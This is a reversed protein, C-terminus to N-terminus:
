GHYLLGDCSSVSLIGMLTHTRARTHRQPMKVTVTRSAITQRMNHNLPVAGPRAGSDFMLLFRIKDSNMASSRARVRCALMGSLYALPVMSVRERATRDSQGIWSLWKREYTRESFPALFSRCSMGHTQVPKALVCILMRGFHSRAKNLEADANETTKPEANFHLRSRRLLHWLFVPFRHHQFALEQIGFRKKQHLFCFLCYCMKESCKVDRWILIIFGCRCIQQTNQCLIWVLPHSVSGFMQLFWYAM